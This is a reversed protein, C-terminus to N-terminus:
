FNSFTQEFNKERMEKEKISKVYEMSEIIKFQDLTDHMDKMAFYVLTIIAKLLEESIKDSQILLLLWQAMDWRGILTELISIIVIKDEILNPNITKM